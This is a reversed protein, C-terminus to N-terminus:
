EHFLDAHTGTRAAVLVLREHEIRYMLLWDPQLHCERYKQMDGALQPDKHKPDLPLGALLTDIVSQLLKLDYGRKKVRKYDRRFQATTELTMM